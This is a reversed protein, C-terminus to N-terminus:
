NGPKGFIEPASDEIKPTSNLSQLQQMAKWLQPMQRRSELGEERPKNQFIYIECILYNVSTSLLHFESYTLILDEYM